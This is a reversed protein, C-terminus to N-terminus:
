ETQEPSCAMLSCLMGSFAPVGHPQASLRVTFLRVIVQFFDTLRSGLIDLHATMIIGLGSLLSGTVLSSM